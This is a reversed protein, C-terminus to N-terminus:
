IVNDISTKRTNKFINLTPNEDKLFIQRVKRISHGKFIIFFPKRKVKFARKARM